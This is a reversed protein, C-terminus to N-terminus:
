SENVSRKRYWTALDALLARSETEGSAAAFVDDFMGAMAAVDGADDVLYGGLPADCYGLPPDLEDDAFRLVCLNGSLSAHAGHAATLVRLSIHPLEGATRLREIQDAMVTSGGVELRLAAEAIVARLRLPDPDDLRRQREMRAAAWRDIYEPTVNYTSAAHVAVAYDRTQLLGPVVIPEFTAVETADNEFAIMPRLWDGLGYSSWWGGRVVESRLQELQKRLELPARLEALLCVLDSKSIKRKGHEWNVVAAHTRGIAAGVDGQTRGTAERLRRLEAGLRRLPVSSGPM